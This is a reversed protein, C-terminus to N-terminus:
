GRNLHVQNPATFIRALGFYGQPQELWLEIARGTVLPTAPTAATCTLVQNPLARHSAGPWVSSEGNPCMHAKTDREESLNGSRNGCRM